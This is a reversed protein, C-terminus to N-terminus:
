AKVAEFGQVAYMQAGKHDYEYTSTKRGAGM